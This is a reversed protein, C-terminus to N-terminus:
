ESGKIKRKIAYIIIIGAVLSFCLSLKFFASFIIYINTLVLLVAVLILTSIFRRIPNNASRISIIYWIIMSFIIYIFISIRSTFFVQELSVNGYIMWVSIGMQIISALLVGLCGIYFIVVWVLDSKERSTQVSNNMAQIQHGMFVFFYISYWSIFCYWRCSLLFYQPM